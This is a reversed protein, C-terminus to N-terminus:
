DKAITRIGSEIKHIKKMLDAKLDDFKAHLEAVELEAKINVEYEIDNRVREKASQINQSLLVFISLFIAELSVAMTLFGFPYPDFPTIFPFLGVNISIWVTFFIANLILFPMSGSFEAIFNAIRQVAGMIEEAESNVNKSVRHAVLEDARRVRRGLVALLDLAAHPYRVLFLKLHARSLVLLDTDELAMASATRPGEDLLSIEGFVEGPNAIHFSVHEGVNDKIFLEVRGGAVIYLSDGPEGKKFLLSNAPYRQHELFTALYEKEPEDLGEFFPVHELAEVTESM